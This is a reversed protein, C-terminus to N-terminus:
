DRPFGSLEARWSDPVRTEDNIVTITKGITRNDKLSAVLIEAVDGRNIQGVVYDVRRALRVGYRGEPEDRLGGPAVVTYALGSQRLYDEAKAKWPYPAIPLTHMFGDRGASGGSMLLFRNVGGAKAADVLARNGKWDVAEFGNAGIPRRGGIASIVADVGDMISYLSSPNTVDAVAPEIGDGLGAAREASRSLARVNFGNELLATVILRGTQGTSGAVLVTGEALASTSLTAGVLLGLLGKIVSM